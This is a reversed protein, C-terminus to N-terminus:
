AHENLNVSDEDRYNTVMAFSKTLMYLLPSTIVFDVLKPM